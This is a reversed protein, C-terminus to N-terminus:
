ANPTREGHLYSTAHASKCCGAGRLLSVMLSATFLWLADGSAPQSFAEGKDGPWVFLRGALGDYTVAIYRISDGVKPSQLFFGASESTQFLQIVTKIPEGLADPVAGLPGM